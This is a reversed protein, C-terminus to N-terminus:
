TGNRWTETQLATGDAALIKSADPVLVDKWDRTYRKGDDRVPARLEDCLQKGRKHRSKTDVRTERCRAVRLGVPRGLARDLGHAVHQTREAHACTAQVHPFGHQRASNEAVVGSRVGRGATRRKVHCHQAHWATKECDVVAGWRPALVIRALKQVSEVLVVGVGDDAGARTVCTIVVPPTMRKGRELLAVHHHHPLRRKAAVERRHGAHGVRCALELRKGLPM